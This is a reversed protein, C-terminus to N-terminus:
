YMNRCIDRWMLKRAAALRRMLGAVIKRVRARQHHREGHQPRGYRPLMRANRGIARRRNRGRYDGYYCTIPARDHARQDGAECLGGGERVRVDVFSPSPLSAVGKM